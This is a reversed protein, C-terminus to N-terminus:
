VGHLPEVAPILILIVIPVLITSIVVLLILFASSFPSSSSSDDPAWPQDEVSRRKDSASILTIHDKAEQQLVAKRGECPHIPPSMGYVTWDASPGAM